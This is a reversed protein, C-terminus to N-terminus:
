DMREDADTPEKKNPYYSGKENVMVALEALAKRVTMQRYGDPMKVIVTGDGVGYVYGNINGTFHISDLNSASERSLEKDLTNLDIPANIGSQTWEEIIKTAKKIAREVLIGAIRGFEVAATKTDVPPMTNREAKVETPNNCPDPDTSM